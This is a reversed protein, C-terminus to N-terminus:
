LSVSMSYALKKYFPLETDAIILDFPKHKILKIAEQGSSAQIVEKCGAEELLTAMFSRLNQIPEALLVVLHPPLTFSNQEPPM